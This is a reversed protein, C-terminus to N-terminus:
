TQPLIVCMQNNLKYITGEVLLGVFIMNKRGGHLEKVAWQLQQIQKCSTVTSHQITCAEAEAPVANVVGQDNGTQTYIFKCYLEDM